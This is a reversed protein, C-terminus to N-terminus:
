KANNENVISVLTETEDPSMETRVAFRRSSAEFPMLVSDLSDQLMELTYVMGAADYEVESEDADLVARCASIAEDLACWLADEAPHNKSPAAKRALTPPETEPQLLICRVPMEFQELAYKMRHAECIGCCTPEKCEDLEHVECATECAALATQLAHLLREDAPLNTQRGVELAKM